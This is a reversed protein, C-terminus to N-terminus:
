AQDSRPQGNFDNIDKQGEPRKMLPKVLLWFVLSLLVWVVAMGAVSMGVNAFAAPAFAPVIGALAAIVLAGAGFGLLVTFPFLLVELAMLTLGLVFWSLPSLLFDLM